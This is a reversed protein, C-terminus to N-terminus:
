VQNLFSDKQKILYRQDPFVLGKSNNTSFPRLINSEESQFLNAQNMPPYLCVWRLTFMDRLICGQNWNASAITRGSQMSVSCSYSCLLINVPDCWHDTKDLVQGRFTQSCLRRAGTNMLKSGRFTSTRKLGWVGKLLWPQYGSITRNQMFGDLVRKFGSAM